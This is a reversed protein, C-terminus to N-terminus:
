RSVSDSHEERKSNRRVEKMLRDRDLKAKLVHKEAMADFFAKQDARGQMDPRSFLAIANYESLADSLAHMAEGISELASSGPSVMDVVASRAYKRGAEGRLMSSEARRKGNKIDTGSDRGNEHEENRADSYEREQRNPSHQPLQRMSPIGGTPVLNMSLAATALTRMPTGGSHLNTPSGMNYQGNGNEMSSSQPLHSDQGGESSEEQEHAPGQALTQAVPWNNPVFRECTSLVRWAGYLKWDSEASDIANFNIVGAIAGLHRGIAARLLKDESVNLGRDIAHDVVESLVTNFKYVDDSIADFQTKVATQSRATWRGDLNEADVPALDVFHKYLKTIFSKTNQERATSKNESAKKWAKAVAESEERSWSKGRGM